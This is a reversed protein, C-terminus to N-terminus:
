CDTNEMQTLKNAPAHHAVIRGDATNDLQKWRQLTRQTIGIIKCAKSQRAGSIHAEDILDIIENREHNM